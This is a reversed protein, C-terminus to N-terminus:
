GALRNIHALNVAHMTENEPTELIKPIQAFRKTKMLTQFPTDGIHGKGIHDHRDVRSGFEKKSDNLHFVLLKDLGVVTDFDKMVKKFGSATRIDYGAAFVHCTDFCVGLRDADDTGGIIDRIQEFTYGLTTGQGATTEICVRVHFGETMEHLRNLSQAVRAIGEEEGKGVHAGPHFVLSDVGLLEARRMEEEFAMMSKAHLSADPSALNILYSDHAVVPGLGTAARAKHFAEVDTDALPKAAWQNANKTFIQLTRCGIELGREFAKYAGGSASM